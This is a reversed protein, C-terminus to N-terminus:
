LIWVAIVLPPDVISVPSNAPYRSRWVLFTRHSARRHAPRTCRRRLEVAGDHGLVLDAGDDLRELVLQEGLQEGAALGDGLRQDEGLVVRVGVVDDLDDALHEALAVLEGGLDGVAGLVALGLVQQLREAVGHVGPDDDRHVHDGGAGVDLRQFAQHEHAAHLAPGVELLHEAPAHPDDVVGLELRDGVVGLALVPEDHHVRDPDHVGRQGLGHLGQFALGAQAQLLQELLDRKPLLSGCTADEM